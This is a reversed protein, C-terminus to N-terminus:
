GAPASGAPHLPRVAPSDPRDRDRGLQCSRGVAPSFIRRNCGSVWRALAGDERWLNGQGGLSVFICHGAPPCRVPAGSFGLSSSTPSSVGPGAPLEGEAAEPGHRHATQRQLPVRHMEGGLRLAAPPDIRVYGCKCMELIIHVRLM